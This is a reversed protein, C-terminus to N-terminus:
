HWSFELFTNHSKYIVKKINKLHPIVIELKMMTPYTHCIEPLPGKQGGGERSCGHAAGFPGMSFLTLPLLHKM